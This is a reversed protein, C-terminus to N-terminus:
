CDTGSGAHDAGDLPRFSWGVAGSEVAPRVISELLVYVYRRDSPRQLANFHTM